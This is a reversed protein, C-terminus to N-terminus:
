SNKRVLIKQVSTVELESTQILIEWLQWLLVIAGRCVMMVPSLYRHLNQGKRLNM